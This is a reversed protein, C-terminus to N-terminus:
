GAGQKEQEEVVNAAAQAMELSSGPVVGAPTHEAPAQVTSRRLLAVVALLFCAAGAGLPLAFDGLYDSLLMITFPGAISGLSYIVLLTTSVDLMSREEARDFALSSAVSYIPFLAAGLIISTLFALGQLAPGAEGRVARGEGPGVFLVMIMLLIVIASLAALVTRRDFRDSMSGVPWQSLLRGSYVAFLSLAVLESPVDHETMYFPVITITSITAFGSVFAALGATVSTITVLRFPRSPNPVISPAGSSTVAVLVVALNMLIAFLLVLGDTEVDITVFILQSAVSGLGLVISYVAIVRGRIQQQTGANMWADSVALVAAVSAGMVFRLLAWQTTGESLELGVITITLVAAAGAYARILGIRIAQSPILFSGFVFGLAYCGAILSVDTQTGGRVAIIIGVMTTIAANSAQVLFSAVLLTSLNSVAARM